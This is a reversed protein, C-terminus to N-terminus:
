KIKFHKVIKDVAKVTALAYKNKLLDMVNLSEPSSLSLNKLNRSSRIILDNKKDMVLLTKFDKVPLKNLLAQLLKTKGESIGLNDLLILRNNAVKDSLVMRLAKIKAKKNILKSFNRESTPGFTIGGGRWIPSRISGHRARGTGKQKWPKKGGGRVESRGKTHALVQRSNAAQAEVVQQVLVPNIKVNFFVPDLEIEKVVEGTLNYVNVKNM